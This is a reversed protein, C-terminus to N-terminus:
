YHYGFGLFFPVWHRGTIDTDNIVFSTYFVLQVTNLLDLSIGLGSTVAFGSHEEAVPSLEETDLFYATDCYLVLGPVLSPLVIAPLNMRVEINAIAKFTSDFRRGELGRVSGGVAARISRGGTTARVELPIQPGSAWDVIGFLALYSSFTNMGNRPEASYLPVFVRGLVTTRNYDASGAVQNHLFPPAWEITAEGHIGCQVHTIPQAAVDSYALGAVFSGILGGSNEPLPSDFFLRDPQEFPYDYRGRYFAFVVARDAARDLGSLIGQQVGLEWLLDFRDYGASDAGYGGAGSTFFSGDPLRYYAVGEYAPSLMATITTEVGDVVPPSLSYRAALSVGIIRPGVDFDFQPEEEAVAVASLIWLLAAILATVSSSKPLARRLATQLTTQLARRTVQRKM